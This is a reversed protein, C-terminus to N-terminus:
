DNDIFRCWRLQSNGRGTCVNGSVSFVNLQSRLLQFVQCAESATANM